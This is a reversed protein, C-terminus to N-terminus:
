KLTLLCEIENRSNKTEFNQMLQVPLTSFDIPLGFIKASRIENMTIGQDVIHDVAVIEHGNLSSELLSLACFEDRFIM